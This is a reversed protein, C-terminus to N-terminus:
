PENTKTEIPSLKLNAHVSAAGNKMTKDEDTHRRRQYEGDKNDSAGGGEKGEMTMYVEPGSTVIM